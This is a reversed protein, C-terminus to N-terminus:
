TQLALSFEHRLDARHNRLSDLAFPSGNNESPACNRHVCFLVEDNMTRVACRLRGEGRPTDGFQEFFEPLHHVRRTAAGPQRQLPRDLVVEAIPRPAGAEVVVVFGGPLLREVGGHVPEVELVKRAIM